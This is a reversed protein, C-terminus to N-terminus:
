ARSGSGHREVFAAIADITDFNEPMMDDETVAIGYRQEIFGILELVGLSDIIGAELLSEGDTVRGVQKALNKELFGRIDRQIEVSEGM